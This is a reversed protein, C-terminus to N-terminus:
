HTFRQSKLDILRRMQERLQSLGGPVRHFNPAGKLKGDLSHSMFGTMAYVYDHSALLADIRKSNSAEQSEIFAFDLAQGFEQQMLGAQQPLLGAIIVKPKDVKPKGGNTKYLNVAENLQQPLQLNVADMIRQVLTSAIAQAFQNALVDIPMGSPIFASQQLQPATPEQAPPTETDAPAPTLQKAKPPPAHLHKKADKRQHKYTGDAKLPPTKSFPFPKDISAAVLAGDDTYGLQIQHKAGLCGVVENIRTPRKCMAALHKENKLNRVLVPKPAKRLTQLVASYLADDRQRPANTAPM